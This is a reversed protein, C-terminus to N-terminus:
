FTSLATFDDRFWYVGDYRILRDLLDPLSTAVVSHYGPQGATEHFVDIIRGQGEADDYALWNADCYDVIQWWRASAGYFPSDDSIYEQQQVSILRSLPPIRLRYENGNPARFDEGSGLYGGNCLRYFALLSEPVGRSAALSLTESDTPEAAYYDTRLRMVYENLNNAMQTKQIRRSRRKAPTVLEVTHGDFDKVVARGGWKTDTPETVITADIVRRPDTVVDVDDVNFGIRTSITVNDPSRQPYIEFVFGCIESVYHEPGKGHAHREFLMGM